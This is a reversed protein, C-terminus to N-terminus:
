FLCDFCAPRAQIKVPATKLGGILPELVWLKMSDGSMASAKAILSAIMLAAVRSIWCRLIDESLRISM